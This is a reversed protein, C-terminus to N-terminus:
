SKLQLWLDALSERKNHPDMRIHRRDPNHYFFQSLDKLGLVHNSMVSFVKEVSVEERKRMLPKWLMMVVVTLVKYIMAALILSSRDFSGLDDVQCGAIRFPARSADSDFILVVLAM